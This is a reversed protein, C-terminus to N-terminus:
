LLPHQLTDVPAYDDSLIPVKETRIMEVILSNNIKTETFETVCEKIIAQEQLIKGREHWDTEDWYEPNMTAILIVNRDSIDSTGRWKEVPFLYTQPFVNRFTDSMSYLLRSKPGAIAGIINSVVVGNPALTKRVTDLFEVTTLHYPITSESYADVIVMDYPSAQGAAIERAKQTVFLRGDQAFVKLKPDNPLGFFHYAVDVVEPDIEVVEISKISPYDHLFKKPASGGGLGIFLLREPKPCAVVSLHLYSTYDFVMKLPEKLDMASQYSNDFHLNRISNSEAVMIHHYLSDREFLIQSRDYFSSSRPRLVLGILMLLAMGTITLIILLKRLSKCYDESPLSDQKIKIRDLNMVILYALSLLIFGLVFVINRVGMIPILFFSTLLTGAISGASSVASLRGATNGINTLSSSTLKIAFPSVMALLVSPVFFFATAAMLSGLRPGLGAFYYSAMTSWFPLLGVWIGAGTLISALILLNPFRDAYRGGYYYGLTLAAMVVMILAGWIYISSGFTPALIRSGIMELSMLVAGSLFVILHLM